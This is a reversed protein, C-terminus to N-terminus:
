KDINLKEQVNSAITKSIEEVNFTDGSILGFSIGAVLGVIILTIVGGLVKGGVGKGEPLYTESEQNKTIIILNESDKSIFKIKGYVESKINRENKFLNDYKSKDAYKIDPRDIDLELTKVIGSWGNLLRSEIIVDARIYEISDSGLLKLNYPNNKINKIMFSRGSYKDIYVRAKKMEEKSKQRLVKEKKIYDDLLKKTNKDKSDNYIEQTEKITSKLNDAKKESSRANELLIDGLNSDRLLIKQGDITNKFETLLKIDSWQKGVLIKVLEMLGFIILVVFAVTIVFIFPSLSVFTSDAYLNNQCLKSTIGHWFSGWFIWFIYLGIMVVIIKLKTGEDKTFKVANIGFVTGVLLVVIIIIINILVGPCSMDNVVNSVTEM